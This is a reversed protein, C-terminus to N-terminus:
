NSDVHGSVKEGRKSWFWLLTTGFLMCTLYACMGITQVRQTLVAPFTMKFIGANGVGLSWTTFNWGAHVGIPFALGRRAAVAAMGFLLSGAGTGILAPFLGWGLFIHYLAFVLAVLLLTPLVGFSSLLRRMPYGRFGIEEYAALVLYLGIASVIHLISIEAREFRVGPVLWQLSVISLACLPIACLLGFFARPISGRVIRTGPEVVPGRDMRGCIQTLALTLFTMLIGGYWQSRTDGAKPQGLGLFGILIRMLLLCVFFGLWFAASRLFADQRAARSHWDVPRNADPFHIVQNDM